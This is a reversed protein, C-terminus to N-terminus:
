ARRAHRIDHRDSEEMTQARRRAVAILLIRYAAGLCRRRENETMTEATPREASRIM